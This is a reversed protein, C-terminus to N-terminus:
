GIRTVKAVGGLNQLNYRRHGMQVETIGNLRVLGVTVGPGVDIRGIQEGANFKYFAPVGVRYQVVLVAGPPVRGDECVLVDM